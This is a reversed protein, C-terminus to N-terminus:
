IHDPTGVKSYGSTIRNLNKQIKFAYAVILEAYSWGMIFCTNTTFFIMDVLEELAKVENFPQDEIERWPKHPVERLLEGMETLLGVTNHNMHNMQDRMSPYGKAFGLKQQYDKFQNFIEPTLYPKGIFVYLEDSNVFESYEPRLPYFRWGRHEIIGKPIYDEIVKPNLDHIGAFIPISRVAYADNNHGLAVCRFPVGYGNHSMHDKSIWSCNDAHFGVKTNQRVLCCEQDLNYAKTFSKFMAEYFDEFSDWSRLDSYKKAEDSVWEWTGYFRVWARDSLNTHNIPISM